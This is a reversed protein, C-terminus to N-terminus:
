GSWNGEADFSAPAEGALHRDRIREYAAELARAYDRTVFPVRSRRAQVLRARIEALRHPARALSLARDEYDALSTAVLEDLGAARVLSEAVRGAFQPSPWTLVPVDAALADSATTHANCTHTDLFLDAHRMRALHDPKAIWPAFVLRSSAVGEREAVGRLVAKAADNTDLLWLVSGPVTALLRMWTSVIKPEFKFSQNFSCFVFGAAPLGCETRSPARPAVSQRDDQALYCGPLRALAEGFAAPDPAVIRDAVLYDVFPAHLSGPYGLFHVQVPAPRLALAEMRDDNTYGKMDVLIDPADEAIRRAVTAADAGPLDVFRDFAAVLRRRMPSGDDRGTSYAHVEFRARDHQEFLGAALHATAHERFDSSLYGIRIRNRAPSRAALTPRPSAAARQSIRRAHQVAVERRLPEPIDVLLSTWPDLARTWDEPPAASARTAIRQTAQAVRSWACIDLLPKLLMAELEPLDPRLERAIDLAEIAPAPHGAAICARAHAIRYGANRPDLDCAQRLAEEAEQGRGAGGLRSGLQFLSEGTPAPAPARGGGRLLDRLLKLLM